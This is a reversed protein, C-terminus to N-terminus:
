TEKQLKKLVKGDVGLSTLLSQDAISLTAFLKDAGLKKKKGTNRTATHSLDEKRLERYTSIFSRQEDISKATFSEYLDELRAM